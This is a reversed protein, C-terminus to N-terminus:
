WWEEKENWMGKNDFVAFMIDIKDPHDNEELIYSWDEIRGCPYTGTLSKIEVELSGEGEVYNFIVELSIPTIKGCVGKGYPLLVSGVEKIQTGQM